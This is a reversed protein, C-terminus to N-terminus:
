TTLHSAVRAKVCCGHPGHMVRAPGTHLQLIHQCTSLVVCTTGYHNFQLAEVTNITFGNDAVSAVTLVENQNIIEDKWATTTLVFKDGAKWQVAEMLPIRTASALVTNAIRTWTLGQVACCLM